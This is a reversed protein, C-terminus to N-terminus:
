SARARRLLYAQIALEHDLVYGVGECEPCVGTERQFLPLSEQADCRPCRVYGYQMPNLWIEILKSNHALMQTM